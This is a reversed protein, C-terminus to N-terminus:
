CPPCPVLPKLLPPNTPVLQNAIKYVITYHSQIITIHPILKPIPLFVM